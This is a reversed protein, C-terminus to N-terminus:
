RFKIEVADVRARDVTSAVAKVEVSRGTAIQAVTGGELKLNPQAYGITTGRLVFTKAVTDVSEILGKFEFERAQALADTLVKVEQAKLQGGVVVGRVEVRAGVKLGASGNPFLAQAANVRVGDVTFANVSAVASVLGSLRADDRDDQVAPAAASSSVMFRGPPNASSSQLQLRIVQGTVAEAPLSGAAFGFTAGGITVSASAADVSTVPGRIKWAAGSAAPEIRTAIYRPGTADFRAHIELVSGVRVAVLGGMLGRDFVTDPGILVTQGLVTLKGQSALVDTVPGVLESAVRVRQARAVSAGTADVTVEGAEVEVSTGLKLDAVALSQGSDNSIVAQSEDYRVSGVIISGFGVIPGAAYTGTGGTGVGGGCAPVLVLAALIAAAGLVRSVLSDLRGAVTWSRRAPLGHTNQSGDISVPSVSPECRPSFLSPM